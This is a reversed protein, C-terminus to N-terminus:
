QNIGPLLVKNGQEDVLTKMLYKVLEVMEATPRKRYRAADSRTRNYDHITTLFRQLPLMQLACFARPFKFTPNSHCDFSTPPWYVENAAYLRQLNPLQELFDIDLWLIDHWLM